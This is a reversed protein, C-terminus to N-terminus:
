HLYYIIKIIFNIKASSARSLVFVFYIVSPANAFIIFLKTLFNLDPYVPKIELM